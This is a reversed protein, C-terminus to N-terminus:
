PREPRKPLRAPFPNPPLAAAEQLSTIVLVEDLKGFDADPEIEASLFMEAQRRETKTIRGIPVGRPFGGALGSTVVPDGVKITAMLPLYKIWAVGKETGEVIGEDRTRQVLGTIANNRDIILLVVSMHDYVKIIRGVAGQPTMVGMDATLGDQQGKNIIVSRYWNTPDRGIVRAAITSYPFSEQLDLLERLRGAAVSLERLRGNEEQLRAIDDRLALNEERVHGLAVYGNWVNAVGQNLNDLARLPYGVTSALGRGIRKLPGERSEPLFVLAAALIALLLLVARKAGTTLQFSIM